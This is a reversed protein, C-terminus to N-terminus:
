HKLEYKCLDLITLVDMIILREESHLVSVKQGIHKARTDLVTTSM